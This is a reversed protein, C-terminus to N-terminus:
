DGGEFFNVARFTKVEKDSLARGSLRLLLDPMPICNV